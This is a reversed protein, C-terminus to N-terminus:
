KITTLLNLVPCVIPKLILNISQEVALFVATTFGADFRQPCVKVTAAPQKKLLAM